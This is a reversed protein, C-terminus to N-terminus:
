TGLLRVLLEQRSTVDLKRYIHAIHKNTTEKSICLERSINTPTVGQCLLDVVERERPTLLATRADHEWVHRHGTPEVLLNQYLNDLHASIVRVIALDRDSFRERHIRDFAFSVSPNGRPDQLLFSLTYKLGRPKIYYDVLDSNLCEYTGWEIVQVQTTGDHKSVDRAIDFGFSPMRSFYELYMSIWRRSIHDFHRRAIKQNGDYIFFIGQDFRIIDRLGEYATLCFQYPECRSGCLLLYDNM